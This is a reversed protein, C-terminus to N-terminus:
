FTRRIRALLYNRDKGIWGDADRYIYELRMTLQNIDYRFGFRVETLDSDRGNTSRWERRVDLTTLSLKTFRARYEYRLYWQETWRDLRESIDVGVLFRDTGWDWRHDHAAWEGDIRATVDSDPLYPDNTFLTTVEARFDLRRPVDLLIGARLDADLILDREGAQDRQRFRLQGEALLRCWDRTEYLARVGARERAEEREIDAADTANYGVAYTQSLQLKPTRTRHEALFESTVGQSDLSPAMSAFDTQTGHVRGHFGIEWTDELTRVPYYRVDALASLGQTDLSDTSYLNGRFDLRARLRDSPYYQTRLIGIHSVNDTGVEMDLDRLRYELDARLNQTPRLVSHLDLRETQRNRAPDDEQEDLWEYDLRLSGFPIRQSLKAGAREIDRFYSPDLEDQVGTEEWYLILNTGNWPSVQWQARGTETVLRRGASYMTGIDNVDRRGYLTLGSRSRPWLALTLDYVLDGTEYDMGKREIDAHKWGVNGSYRGVRGGAIAGSLNMRVEEEVTRTKRNGYTEDEYSVQAFGRARRFVAGVAGVLGGVIKTGLRTGRRRRMTEPQRKPRRVVLKRVHSGEDPVVYVSRDSPDFAMRVPMETLDVQQLVEKSSADLLVFQRAEVDGVFVIGRGQDVALSHPATGVDVTVLKDKDIVMLKGAVPLAVFVAGTEPDILVDGPQAPLDLSKIDDPSELDVIALTRAERSAIVLRGDGPDTAMASPAAALDIEGVVAAKGCDVVRASRRRADAVYLRRREPDIALRGPEGGVPITATVELLVSDVVTVVAREADSVYVKNAYPDSVVAVGEGGLPVRKLVDRTITDLVCLTRSDRCVLYIHSLTSNLAIDVPREGCGIVGDVAYPYRRAGNQGNQGNHGNQFGNAAHGADATVPLGNTPEDTERTEGAKETTEVETAPPAPPPAVAGGEGGRALAGAAALALALV